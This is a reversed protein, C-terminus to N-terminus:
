SPQRAPLGGNVGVSLSGAVDTLNRLELLLLRRMGNAAASAPAAPDAVTEHREIRLPLLRSLENPVNTFSPWLFSRGARRRVSPGLIGGFGIQFLQYWEGGKTYGFADSAAVVLLRRRPPIGAPTESCGASCMSSAASRMRAAFPGRFVCSSGRGEPIKVEVLDYFGDNFLIQPDFGHDHLHRLVDQVHKTSISTSRSESQPDTGSWRSARSRRRAEDAACNYPGNGRGDDCVYDEFVLRGPHDESSSCMARKNREPAAELAAVFIDVGFRECMTVRRETRCAAVIANFREPELAAPASTSHPDSIRRCCARGTSRSRRSPSAKRSSPPPMPRCAARVKGGVDTMHRVDRGLRRAAAGYFIPLLVATM